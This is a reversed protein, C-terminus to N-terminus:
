LTEGYKSGIVQRPSGRSQFEEWKVLFVSEGICPKTMGGGWDGFSRFKECLSRSAKNIADREFYDFSVGNNEPKFAGNM